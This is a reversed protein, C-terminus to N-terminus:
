DSPMSGGRANKPDELYKVVDGITQFDSPHSADSGILWYVERLESRSGDARVDQYSVKILRIGLEHARGAASREDM